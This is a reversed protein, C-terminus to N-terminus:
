LLSVKEVEVENWPQSIEVWLTDVNETSPSWLARLFGVVQPLANVKKANFDQSESTLTPSAVINSTVRAQQFSHAVSAGM